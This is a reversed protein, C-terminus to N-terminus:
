IFEARLAAHLLQHEIERFRDRSLIGSLFLARNRRVFKKGWSASIM